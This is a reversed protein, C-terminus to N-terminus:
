ERSLPFGLRQEKQAPRAAPPRASSAATRLHRAIFDRCAQYESCSHCCGYEFHALPAHATEKLLGGCRACDLLCAQSAKCLHFHPAPLGGHRVEHIRLDRARSCPYKSCTPCCM